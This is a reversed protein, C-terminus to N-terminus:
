ALADRVTKVLLGIQKASISKKGGVRLAEVVISATAQILTPDGTAAARPTEGNTAAPGSRTRPPTAGVSPGNVLDALRQQMKNTAVAHGTEWNQISTSSVGLTAAVSARSMKNNDRWERLGQPSVLTWTGPKRGGRRAGAKRAAAKRKKAM